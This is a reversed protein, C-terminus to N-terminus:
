IKSVPIAFTNTVLMAVVIRCAEERKGGAEDTDACVVELLDGHECGLFVTRVDVDARDM